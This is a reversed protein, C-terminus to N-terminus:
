KLCAARRACSRVRPRRTRPRQHAGLLRRGGLAGVGDRRPRRLRVRRDRDSLDARAAAVRQDPWASGARVGGRRPFQQYTTYGADEYTVYPRVSRVPYKGGISCQEFQGARAGASMATVLALAIGAMLAAVRWRRGGPPRRKLRARMRGEVIEIYTARPAPVATLLPAPGREHGQRPRAAERVGATRRARPLAGVHHDRREDEDLRGDARLQDIVQWGDMVPMFLDLLVICIQDGSANLTALAEQGNVATKVAYGEFELLEHLHGRSEKEDEVVLIVSKQTAMAEVIGGTTTCFGSARRRYRPLVVSFTTGREPTSAVEIRGGHARIIQETIYLGLGLGKSRESRIVKGASPSSCTPLQESSIPAGHNHVTVTVDNGTPGSTWRDGTSRARRARARERRPELVGSGPSRSRRPANVGTGGTWEIVRGPYARRLEDVVESAIACLDIPAKDIPIGGALRSRTLDLLQGVMNSMRRASSAVREVATMENPAKAIRRLLRTTMIIANLPNRLDHGLM